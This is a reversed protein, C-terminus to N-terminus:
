FGKFHVWLLEDSVEVLGLALFSIQNSRILTEGAKSGGRSGVGM